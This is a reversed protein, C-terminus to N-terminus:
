DDGRERAKGVASVAPLARLRRIEERTRDIQGRLHNSPVKKTPDLQDPEWDSLPQSSLSDWHKLHAPLIKDELFQLREGLQRPTKPEWAPLSAAAPGAALSLLAALLLRRRM